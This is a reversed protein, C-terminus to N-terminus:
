GIIKIAATFYGVGTAERCVDGSHPEHIYRDEGIFVAVHGPRWLIDGPEALSVPVKTGFAAQDESNRPIPIGAQAYCYQTLGSCDLGVGPTTGGWVYPVGLQSRAAEVIAPRTQDMSELQELTMGDFRRLGYTDMAAKLSEVYSSSTAWGASKLGEAMKDSDRKEMAERILPNNAYTGAQLFVRSRFRICDVDSAFSTFYATVAVTEGGYEENTAWASKGSVEPCAAFSSSWKMGFLNHDREALQSMHDGQGSEVIIQAITCGAPHGYDEQCEVAAEVMEYTIYPPLGALSQKAAENQWFGFLAAVLQSVALAVLIFALVGAFVGGLPAAASAIAGGIAKASTSKTAVAAKAGGAAESAKTRVAAQIRASPAKTGKAAGKKAGGAARAAKRSSARAASAGGSPEASGAPGALGKAGVRSRAKAAIRKSLMAKDRVDAAGSFEETDDLENAAAAGVAGKAGDVAAGERRLRRREEGDPGSGGAAPGRGAKKGRWYPRRGGPVAGAGRGEKAVHAGTHVRAASGRESLTSLAQEEASKVAGSNLVTEKEEAVLDRMGTDRCAQQRGSM